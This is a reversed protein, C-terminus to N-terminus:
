HDCSFRLVVLFANFSTRFLCTIFCLHIKHFNYYEAFIKDCEKGERKLHNKVDLNDIQFVNINHFSQVVRRFSLCHVFFYVM